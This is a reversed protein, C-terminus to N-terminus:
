RQKAILSDLQEVAMETTRRLKAYRAALAPDGAPKRAASEIRALAADIRALAQSARDNSM